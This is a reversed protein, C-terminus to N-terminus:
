LPISSQPTHQPTVTARLTGFSSEPQQGATELIREPPETTSTSPEKWGDDANSSGDIPVLVKPDHNPPLQGRGQHPRHDNFHQVYENLITRAHRQSYILLHDTCEERMSHGWREVFCNARPTRPPTKVVQVGEDPLM